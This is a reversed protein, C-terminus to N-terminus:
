SRVWINLAKDQVVNWAARILAETIHSYKGFILLQGRESYEYQITSLSYILEEANFLRIEGAEMLKLLNAYLDEKLLRKRKPNEDRTLSRYANNISIVKRRTQEDTLLYDFVGAGVGADDIYIRRYSYLKDLEKIRSITDTLRTKRTIELDIMLLLNRNIREISVYATEDHGLRAIDVGLYTNNKPRRLSELPNVSCCRKILEDPFYRRLEDIFEGLYEQAFQIKTMRKKEKELFDPEIRPCETSRVHFSKFSDDNFARYFYGERGHPTSLMWLIGKSAALMPTVAGWVEEPIFAAEDAILLHATFGRIGYGSLGTPYCMIKSGNKLKIIHRTPKDKGRSILKPENSAIYSLIKEFLLYAQRETYAIVLVNKNPNNLAFMGAKIAIITSKGVQRGSRLVINGETKLIEKQWEDLKM